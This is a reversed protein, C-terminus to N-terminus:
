KLMARCICYVIGVISLIFCSNIVFFTTDLCRVHLEMQPNSAIQNVNPLSGGLFSRMYAQPHPTLHTTPARPTQFAFYLM